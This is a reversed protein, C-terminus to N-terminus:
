KEGRLIPLIEQAVVTESWTFIYVEVSSAMLADIWKQQDESVKKGPMKLEIYILRPPKCLTLDPIGPTVGERTNDRYSKLHFDILFGYLQALDAVQRRFDSEIMSM